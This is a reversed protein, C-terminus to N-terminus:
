DTEKTWQKEPALNRDPSSLLDADPRSLSRKWTRPSIYKGMAAFRALSRTQADRRAKPFKPHNRGEIIRSVLSRPNNLDSQGQFEGIGKEALRICLHQVQEATGQSFIWWYDGFEEDRRSFVDKLFDAQHAQISPLKLVRPRGTRM